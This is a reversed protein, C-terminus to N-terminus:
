VAFIQKQKQRCQGTAHLRNIQCGSVPLNHNFADETFSRLLRQEQGQGVTDGPDTRVRQFTSDCGKHIQGCSFQRSVKDKSLVTDPDKIVGRKRFVTVAKLYIDGTVSANPCLVCQRRRDIHGISEGEVAKLVYVRGIKKMAHM